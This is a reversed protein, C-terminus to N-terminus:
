KKGYLEEVVRKNAKTVRSPQWHKLAKATLPDYPTTDDAMISHVDTDHPLGIAHGIEHAILYILGKMDYGDKEAAKLDLIIAKYKDPHRQDDVQMADADDKGPLKRDAIFLNAKRMNDTMTFHMEPAWMRAAKVVDGKVVQSFQPSVYIVPHNNAFPVYGAKKLKRLIDPSKYSYAKDEGTDEAEYKKFEREWKKSSRLHMKNWKHTRKNWTYKINWNATHKIYSRHSIAAQIQSDSQKNGIVSGFPTLALLATLLVTLTKRNKM